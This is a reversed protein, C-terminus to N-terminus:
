GFGYAPAGGRSNAIKEVDAISTCTWRSASRVQHFIVEQRVGHDPVFNKRSADVAKRDCRVSRRNVHRAAFGIARVGEPVDDVTGVSANRSGNVAADSAWVVGDDVVVATAHIHSARVRVRIAVAQAIEDYGLRGVTGDDLSDPRDEVVAIGAHSRKRDIGLFLVREDNRPAQVPKLYAAYRRSANKEGDLDRSKRGRAAEPVVCAAMANGQGRVARFEIDHIVVIIVDVDEVHSSQRGGRRHLHCIYLQDMRVRGRPGPKRM